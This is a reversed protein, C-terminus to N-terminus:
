NQHEPKSPVPRQFVEIPVQMASGEPEHTYVELTVRPSAHGLAEQAAKVGRKQYILSGGTHSLLHLGDARPTLHGSGPSQIPGPVLLASRYWLVSIVSGFDGNKM